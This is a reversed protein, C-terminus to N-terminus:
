AERAEEPDASGGPAFRATLALGPAAIHAFAQELEPALAEAAAARARTVGAGHVACLEEFADLEGSGQGEGGAGRRLLEHRAKLAREYRARHEASRPDMFLALRDLLTRRGSAPGTSLALEEPHFAVVPSRTAFSSLSPPRNGDLLVACRRGEIAAVQERAMPALGVPQEVFRARASAVAAEHRVLEGMRHTRFSRSTAAFYIAELVSSKGHGNNGTIVNLRPAPTLDVRELNRLDRIALQELLLSPPPAPSAPSEAPASM